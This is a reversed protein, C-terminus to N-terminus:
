TRRVAWRIEGLESVDELSTAAKILEETLRRAAGAEAQLTGPQCLAEAAAGFGIIGPLNELGGRRAAGAGGM